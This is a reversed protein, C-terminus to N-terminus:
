SAPAQALRSELDAVRQRLMEGELYAYAIEAQRALGALLERERKDLDTGAEHGSYLAVAFCRRPNGVPVALVPRGLGEPLKANPMAGLGIPYEACLLRGRPALTAADLVQSASADWGASVHRRFAGAEERFLAASTLVLSRLPEDVLLREMEALSDAHQITQAVEDLHAETRRYELDFWGDALETALEHLRAIMFALVSAVLVWAWGPLHVFDDLVEVEQHLFFAPVSLLLGLVTARRLPISVNVVSDRRVAQVVFLCLVGNVLYVLGFVDEPIGGAGFPGVPLSTVQSIEAVLFAPLGIVCGWIVWRIRQYDRAGLSNRRGLLIGLAAVDVAFGVLLAARMATESPRGFASGLSSLALLFFLAALVPLAREIRRWVGEARDVPVRLAFLLFGTYGAAQLVCTAVWQALLLTPWQQLWGYFQYAQGPNFQIVYAFFGWTMGGPRLWVLWAGGLVVMIGAVQDLLLVLDLVRSRPRPESVLIIQRAPRDEMAVLLLTATRGPLVYNLGGWMALMSACLETDVPVCRMAMLDLRDGPRIGARWAPSAATAPFPGRVDYIVGDTDAALGFSGLPRVIRYLDPVIMGLAYATLLVLLIRGGLRAEHRDNMALGSVELVSGGLIM